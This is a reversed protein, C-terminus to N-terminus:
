AGSSAKESSQAALLAKLKDAEKPSLAGQKYQQLLSQIERKKDQESLTKELKDMALAFESKPDPVQESEMYLRQLMGADESDRYRELLIAGSRVDALQIKQLLDKLLPAGRLKLQQLRYHDPLAYQALRPDMLLLAIATQAPTRVARRLDPRVATKAQSGHTKEPLLFEPSLDARRALDERMLKRLTPQPIKEILRRAREVFGGRGEPSTLNLDKGVHRFLFESLNQSQEIQKMFAQRGDRRVIEDPDKGQPLFSFKIEQGSEIVSLSHDLAREAARRGAEDGDFCFTIKKCVKLLTRLHYSTVATGLTAVVNGIGKEFLSVLDMYGEVVIIEDLPRVQTLEYLGYVHKRKEFVSTEPSNLYKPKQDEGLSRGGFALVRGRRDRIPFVVRHRFKDYYAKGPESKAILGAEFLQKESCQEDLLAQYANKGNEAYGIRFHDITKQSLGRKKLYNQATASTKLNKSYIQAAKDLIKYLRSHLELRAKSSSRGHRPVEMNAQEALMEVAEIYPIHRYKMLFTISSGGIGCGFCYFFQKNQSVSFSPTKEVHFPCCAVHNNGKKTLPVYHNILSVIDTRSLLEDIFLQFDQEAM